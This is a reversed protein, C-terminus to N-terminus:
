AFEEAIAILKRVTNINRITVSQYMPTGVIRTLRSKTAYKKAVRHVVAGPYYSNTEVDPNSPIQELVAPNDIDPWLFLVDCKNEADNVWKDPINKVIAQLEAPAKVLVKVTLSFTKAIAQELQAALKEPATKPAKFIVNGSNIYTKVDTYGLEEFCTKLTAMSVAAKGGVNIGRLLAIYVSDNKM